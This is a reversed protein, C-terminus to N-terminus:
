VAVDEGRLSNLIGIAGLAVALAALMGGLFISLASQM